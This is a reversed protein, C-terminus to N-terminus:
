RERNAITPRGSLMGANLVSSRAHAVVGARVVRCGLSQGFKRGVAHFVGTERFGFRKHLAISGENPLTIGAVLMHIDEGAIVEFLATYLATGIGKGVADHACYISTEVTSDYAAKTRFQHTGAYGAIVGGDIAVLLRHRGTEGFQEFWPGREDVTLPQLDFTIPTHAIYHNYIEVIRPLDDITAPWITTDTM